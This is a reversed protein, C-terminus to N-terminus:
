RGPSIVRSEGGDDGVLGRDRARSAEQRSPAVPRQVDPLRRAVAAAQDHRELPPASHSSSTSCPSFSLMLHAHTNQLGSPRSRM